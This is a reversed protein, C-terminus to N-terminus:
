TDIEDEKPLADKLRRELEEMRQELEKMRAEIGARLEPMREEVWRMSRGAIAPEGELTAELAVNKGDRVVELALKADKEATFVQRIVEHTDGVEEGGASVIIDGVRLGAREAASDENVRVILVGHEKPAHMFERLEPTMDQLQVGLRSPGPMFKEFHHFGAGPREDPGHPHALAGSALLWSAAFAIGLVSRM